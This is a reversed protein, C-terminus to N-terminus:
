NSYSNYNMFRYVSLKCGGNDRKKNYSYNVVTKRKLDCNFKYKTNYQIKYKVALRKYM